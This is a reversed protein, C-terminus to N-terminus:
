ALGCSVVHPQWLTRHHKVLSAPVMRCQGNEFDLSVYGSARPLPDLDILTGTRAHPLRIVTAGCSCTAYPIEFAM